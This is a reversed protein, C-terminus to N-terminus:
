LFSSVQSLAIVLPEVLLSARSIKGGSLTEHPDDSSGGIMESIILGVTTTVFGREEAAFVYTYPFQFGASSSVIIENGPAVVVVLAVDLVPTDKGRTYGVIGSEIGIGICSNDSDRASEARRLAGQYMEDYGVPQANVGSDAGVGIIVPNVLGVKKCAETLAFLKHRSRSGLILSKM